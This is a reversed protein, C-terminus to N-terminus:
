SWQCSCDGKPKLHLPPLSPFVPLLSEPLQLLSPKNDTFLYPLLMFLELIINAYRQVIMTLTLFYDLSYHTFSQIWKLFDWDRNFEFYNHFDSHALNIAELRSLEANTLSKSRHLVPFLHELSPEDTDM